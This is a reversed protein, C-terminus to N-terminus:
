MWEPLGIEPDTDNVDPPRIFGLPTNAFPGLRQVAWYIIGQRTLRRISPDALYKNIASMDIVGEPALELLRKCERVVLIVSGPCEQTKANEPAGAALHDPHGPDTLHCSQMGGGGNRLKKWLRLLNQKRYFGGFHRKGHNSIRWPCQTCPNKNTM